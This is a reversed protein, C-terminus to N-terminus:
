SAIWLLAGILFQYGQIEDKTASYVEGMHMDKRLEVGVEMRIKTAKCSEMGLGSILRNIYTTQDVFITRSKRDRTIRMGLYWSVPGLDKMCFKEGLQEKLHEIELSNPSIVLLDDVYIAVILGNSRHIFVFHDLELRDYGISALFNALTAYWERPSQKLGYLARLLECVLEYAPIRNVSQALGKPQEVFVKHKLLSELFATLVDLQEIEWDEKVRLGLLARWLASEVVSAFTEDFDVGEVQRFGKVVWRAKYRAIAGNSNLKTKFVWM